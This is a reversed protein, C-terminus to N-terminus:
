INNKKEDKGGRLGSQKPMSEALSDVCILNLITLSNVVSIENKLLTQSIPLLGQSM